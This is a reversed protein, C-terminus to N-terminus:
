RARTGIAQLMLHLLHGFGRGGPRRALRRMQADRALDAIHYRVLDEVILPHV